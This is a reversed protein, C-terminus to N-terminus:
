RWQRWSPFWTRRLNKVEVNPQGALGQETRLRRSWFSNPNRRRMASKFCDLFYCHSHSVTNQDPKFDFITSNHTKKKLNGSSKSKGSLEDKEKIHGRNLKIQSFYFLINMQPFHNKFFLTFIRLNLCYLASGLSDGGIEISPHETTLKQYYCSRLLYLLCTFSVLTDLLM